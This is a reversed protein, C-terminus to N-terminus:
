PAPFGNCLCPSPLFVSNTGLLGMSCQEETYFACQGTIYNNCCGIRTESVINPDGSGIVNEELQKTVFGLVVFALFAVVLGVVAYRIYDMGENVQEDNGRATMWLTGGYIFVVMSALAILGLFINLIKGVRVGIKDNSKPKVKGQSYANSLGFDLKEWNQGFFSDQASVSLPASAISGVSVAAFIGIFVFKLVQM